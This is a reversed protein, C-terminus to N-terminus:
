TVVLQGTIYAGGMNNVDYDLVMKWNYTGAVSPATSTTSGSWTSTGGVTNVVSPSASVWSTGPQVQPESPIGFVFISGPSMANTSGPGSGLATVTATGSV